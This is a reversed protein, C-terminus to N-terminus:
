MYEDIYLINYYLSPLSLTSSLISRDPSQKNGFKRRKASRVRCGIKRKGPVNEIYGLKGKNKKKPISRERKGEKVTTGKRLGNGFSSLSKSKNIYEQRKIVISYYDGAGGRHM